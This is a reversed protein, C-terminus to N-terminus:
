VDHGGKNSQHELAAFAKRFAKRGRSIRARMADPKVHAMMAAEATSLGELDILLVAEQYVDDISELACRIMNQLIVRRDIAADSHTKFDLDTRDSVAYREKYRGSARYHDLVLYRAARYLWTKTGDPYALEHNKKYAVAFTMQILDQVAEDDAVWRRLTREIFPFWEVYFTNWERDGWSMPAKPMHKSTM